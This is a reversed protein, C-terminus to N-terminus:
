HESWRSPDILELDHTQLYDPVPPVPVHKVSKLIGQLHILSDVGVIIGDVHPQSHGFAMCAQLATISQEELWRHWRDWLDQWQRFRAPRASGDMLLLGQLFISRIHIKVGEAHLRALWGSSGLRRDFVNMPAQVLDFQYRPWLSDLDEPAYISIGINTAEGREKADLLARFLIDGTPGLLQRPQHLLLGYLSDCGLTRLSAAITGDVWGSVDALADPVAPVKSVVRWRRVDLEGLRRESEGYAAATDLTDIGETWALNLIKAAEARDILGTRNAVGYPLGFQATGLVLRNSV